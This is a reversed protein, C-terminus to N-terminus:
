KLTILFIIEKFYKVGWDTQLHPQMVDRTALHEVKCTADYCAHVEEESSTFPPGGFLEHDVIFADLVYKCDPKMLDALVKAYLIRPEWSLAAYSGRDWICDFTGIVTRSLKFVDCRYISIPQGNSAKYLTGNIEPIDEVTYDINHENFFEQCAQDVGENGVVEHGQEILWKLDVSKGCLPLFIRQQSKGSTLLTLYKQLMPHVTTNHFPTQDKAWRACWDDVQYDVIVESDGFQNRRPREKLDTAIDIHQQSLM